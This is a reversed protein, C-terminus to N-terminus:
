GLRPPPTRGMGKVLKMYVADEGSALGYLDQRGLLQYGNRFLYARVGLNSAKADAVVRRCGFDGAGEIEANRLLFSAVHRGRADPRVSINKIELTEPNRRHRQYIVAGVIEGMSLALLARKDENKLQQHAGELWADFDPYDTRPIWLRPGKLYDVVQDALSWTRETTFLFEM